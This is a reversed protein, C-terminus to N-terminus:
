QRIRRIFQTANIFDAVEEDAQFVKIVELAIGRRISNPTNKLGSLIQLKCIEM